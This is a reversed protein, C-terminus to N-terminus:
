QPYEEDLVLRAAEKELPLPCIWGITFQYNNAMVTLLYRKRYSRSVSLSASRTPLYCYTTALVDLWM